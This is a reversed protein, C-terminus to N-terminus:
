DFRYADMSLVGYTTSAHIRRGNPTSGAGMAVFLPLLHDPTPHNRKGFPAREIANFIGDTDGREIAHACWEAFQTVWDPAQADVTANGGFYAGLNHTVSGSGIILINRNRLSSIAQGLEYHWESNRRIDISLQVVPIDAAPYMLLLPVWAGHDFGRQSQEFAEIGRHNLSQLIERALDPSGNAPYHLQYLQDPFGGFDHVTEPASASTVAVGRAVHHASVVVIADPRELDQGLKRLFNRAPTEEVALTPAGHSIFLSPQM